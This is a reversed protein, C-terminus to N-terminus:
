VPFSQSKYILRTDKLKGILWSFKKKLEKLNEAFVTIDGTFLSLKIEEKVIQIVIM